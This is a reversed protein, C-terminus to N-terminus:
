VDRSRVGCKTLITREARIEAAIPDKRVNLQDKGFTRVMENIVCTAQSPRLGSKVLRNHLSDANYGGGACGSALAGILVIV